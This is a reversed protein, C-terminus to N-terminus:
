PQHADGLPTLLETAALHGGTLEGITVEFSAAAAVTKQVNATDKKNKGFM